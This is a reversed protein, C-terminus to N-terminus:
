LNPLIQFRPFKNQVNQLFQMSFSSVDVPLKGEERISIKHIEGGLHRDVQFKTVSTTGKIFAEMSKKATGKISSHRQLLSAHKACLRCWIKVVYTKGDNGDSTEFGIVDKELNLFTQLAVKNGKVEAMKLCLSTCSIVQTVIKKKISHKRTEFMRWLCVLWSYLQSTKM